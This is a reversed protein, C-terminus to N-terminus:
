ASTEEPFVDDEMISVGWIVVDTIEPDKLTPKQINVIALNLAQKINGTEITAREEQVQGNIHRISYYILWHKM